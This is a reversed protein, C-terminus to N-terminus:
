DRSSESSSSARGKPLFYKPGSDIYVNQARIVNPKNELRQSSMNTVSKVRNRVPIAPKQEGDFYDSSSESLCIEEKQKSKRRLTRSNDSQPRGRFKVIEGKWDPGQNGKPIRPPVVPKKLETEEDPSTLIDERSKSEEAVTECSTGSSLSSQPNESSTSSNERKRQPPPSFYVGALSMSKLCSVPHFSKSCREQCHCTFLGAPETEDTMSLLSEYEFKEKDNLLSLKDTMSIKFATVLAKPHIYRRCEELVEKWLGEQAGVILESCSIKLYLESSIIEASFLHDVVDLVNVTEVLRCRFCKMRSKNTEIDSFEEFTEWVRKVVKEDLKCSQLWEQMTVFDKNILICLFRRLHNKRDSGIKITKIEERCLWKPLIISQGESAAKVLDVVNWQIAKSLCERRFSNLRREEDKDSPVTHTSRRIRTPIRTSKEHFSASKKIKTKTGKVERKKCDAEELEAKMQNIFNENRHRSRISEKADSTKSASIYKLSKELSNIRDNQQSFQDEFKDLKKDVKELLSLVKEDM